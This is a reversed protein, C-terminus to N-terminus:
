SERSGLKPVAVRCDRPKCRGAAKRMVGGGVRRGSEAWQGLLAIFDQTNVVDDNNWDATCFCGKYEAIFGTPQGGAQSFLGGVFM